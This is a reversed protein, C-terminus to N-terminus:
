IEAFNKLLRTGYQHSKEPHFQVGFVNRSHVACVFAAATIRRASARVRPTRLSLLYSHLFYFRADTELGAFLPSSRVPEVDNWGMHPLHLSRANLTSNTKLKRVRGRDLRARAVHGEDSDTPSSRCASASASSRFVQAVSWRWRATERM